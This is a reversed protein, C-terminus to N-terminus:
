EGLATACSTGSNTMPSRPGMTSESNSPARALGFRRHRAIFADARGQAWGYISIGHKWVGVFLRHKDLRYTPMKYSLRLSAEPFTATVLSDIRDFLPRYEPPIAEIYERVAPDM